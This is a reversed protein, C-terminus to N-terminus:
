ERIFKATETKDGSRFELLYIGPLLSDVPIMTQGDKQLGLSLEKLVTGTLSLMRVSCNGPQEMTYHIMLQDTAPVPHLRLSIGSRTQNIAKKAPRSSIEFRTNGFSATDDTINFAYISDQEL